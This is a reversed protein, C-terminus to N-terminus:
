RSERVATTTSPATEFPWHCFWRGQIKAEFGTGCIIHGQRDYITATPYTIPPAGMATNVVTRFYGVLTFEQATFPVFPEQPLEPTWFFYHSTWFENALPEYCRQGNPMPRSPRGALPEAPQFACAFPGNREFMGTDPVFPSSGECGDFGAQCFILRSCVVPAAHGCQASPAGIPNEWLSWEAGRAGNNPGPPFRLELISAPGLTEGATLGLAVIFHYETGDSSLDTVFLFLPQAFSITAGWIAVVVVAFVLKKLMAM